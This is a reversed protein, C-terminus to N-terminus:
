HAAAATAEAPSIPVVASSKSSEKISVKVGKSDFKKLFEADYWSGSEVDEWAYLRYEGPKIATVSFHGTQDLPAIKYVSTNEPQPPEPVLVVMGTPPTPAQDVAAPKDSTVTGDIEGGNMSLVITIPAASPGGSLDVINDTIEREGWRVAKVYGGTTGPFFNLRHKTYGVNELQFTGDEKPRIPQMFSPFTEGMLTIQM